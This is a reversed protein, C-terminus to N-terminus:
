SKLKFNLIPQTTQNNPCYSEFVPLKEECKLYIM